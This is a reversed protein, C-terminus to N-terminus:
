KLAQKENLIKRINNKNLINEFEAQYRTYIRTKKNKIFLDFQYFASKRYRKSAYKEIDKLCIVKCKFYTRLNIETDSIIIQYRASYLWGDLGILFFMLYGMFMIFVDKDMFEKNNLYMYPFILLLLILTIISFIKFSKSEKKMGDIIKSNM